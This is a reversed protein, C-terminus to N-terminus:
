LTFRYLRPEIILVINGVENHLLELDESKAEIATYHIDMLRCTLVFSDITQRYNNAKQQDESLPPNVKKDFVGNNKLIEKGREVASMIMDEADPLWYKKAIWNSIHNTTIILFVSFCLLLFLISFYHSDNFLRDPLDSLWIIKLVQILLGLIAIVAYIYARMKLQIDGKM